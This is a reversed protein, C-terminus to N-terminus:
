EKNNFDFIFDIRHYITLLGFDSLEQLEKMVIGVYKISM